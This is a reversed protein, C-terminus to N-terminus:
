PLWVDGFVARVASRPADEYDSRKQVKPNRYETNRVSEMDRMKWWQM